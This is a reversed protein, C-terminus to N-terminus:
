TFREREKQRYKFKQIGIGFTNLAQYEYRRTFKRELNFLNPFFHSGSKFDINSITSMRDIGLDFVQAIRGSNKNPCRASDSVMNIPASKFWRVDSCEYEVFEVFRQLES